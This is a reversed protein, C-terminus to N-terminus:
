VDLNICKLVLFIYIWNVSSVTLDFHKTILYAIILSIVERQIHM